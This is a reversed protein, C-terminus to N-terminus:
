SALSLASEFAAQKIKNATGFWMSNVRNSLQEESTTGLVKLEHDAWESVANYAAWATGRIGAMANRENDLNVLFRELIAKQQKESRDAVLQTFYATLEAKNMQKRALGQVEQEFRDVRQVVIGLKRRADAVRKDLSETHVISLGESVGNNLALTLTNNCVVRVTTPLIRLGSSGDHSNTILVYPHVVDDGAARVERPLRALMWVRRGGKIAGATEWKALNDQVISDMFGFAESNQFPKYWAGVVGLVAQTDSRTVAYQGPVQQYGRGDPTHIPAYVERKEVQWDLEALTIAQESTQAESVVKGLKHWAPEGAVFCAARNEGRSQDILHAM